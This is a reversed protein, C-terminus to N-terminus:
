PGRASIAQVGRTRPAIEAVLDDLDELDHLLSEVAFVLGYVRAAEDFSMESTLRAKRMQQVTEEFAAHPGTLSTPDAPAGSLLLDSCSRLGDALADLLSEAAPTLIADITPPLPEALARAVMVSDTRVRWLANLLGEPVAAESFGSASERAAETVAQEVASLAKRNSQFALLQREEVDQGKLRHANMELLDALQGLALAVGHVVAKRARAPFVLLTASLGVVSGILIEVVRWAAAILPDMHATSGGVLVIAATVPAVKLSPRVAAAFALLAIAGSLIFGEELVTSAKLYAAGVGVLGGVVTGILREVGATITGGISTQVVLVSTFVAWYAQPLHLLEGIAFSLGVAVSVRIAHRLEGQRANAATLARRSLGRGTWGRRDEVEATM